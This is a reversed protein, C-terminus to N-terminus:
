PEIMTVPEGQHTGGDPSRHRRDVPRATGALTLVEFRGATLTNPMTVLPLLGPNATTRALDVPWTCGALTLVEIM